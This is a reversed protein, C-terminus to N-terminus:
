RCGSFHHRTHSRRKRRVSRGAHLLVRSCRRMGHDSRPHSMVWTLRARLWLAHGMLKDRVHSHRGGSPLHIRSWKHASHRGAGTPGTSMGHRMQVRRLSLEELRLRLMEIGHGTLREEGQVSEKM